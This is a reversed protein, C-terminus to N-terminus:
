APDDLSEDARQKASFEFIEMFNNFTKREVTSDDLDPCFRRKMVKLLYMDLQYLPSEPLLADIGCHPCIATHDPDGDVWQTIQEPSYITACSFCGVQKSALLSTKNFISMAHFQRAQRITYTM